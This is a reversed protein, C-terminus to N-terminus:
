GRSPEVALLEREDRPKGSATARFNNLIGQTYPIQTQLRRYFTSMGAGVSQVARGTGDANVAIYSSLQDPTLPPKGGQAYASKIGLVTDFGIPMGISVVVAGGAKLISRRSFTSAKDMKTM